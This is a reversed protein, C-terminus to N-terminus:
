QDKGAVNCGGVFAYFYSVSFYRNFFLVMRKVGWEIENGKHWGM